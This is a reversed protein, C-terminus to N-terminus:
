GVDEYEGEDTIVSVINSGRASHSEKEGCLIVVALVVLVAVTARMPTMGHGIWDATNQTSRVGDHPEIPPSSRGPDSMPEGSPFLRVRGHAVRHAPGDWHDDLPDLSSLSSRPVVLRAATTGGRVSAICVRRHKPRSIVSSPTTTRRGCRFFVCYAREPDRDSCNM